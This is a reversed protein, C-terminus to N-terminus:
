LMQETLQVINFGTNLPQLYVGRTTCKNCLRRRAQQTMHPKMISRYFSSMCKLRITTSAYFM